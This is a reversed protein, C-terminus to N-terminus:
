EQGTDAIRRVEAAVIREVLPPLNADLWDKLVPRLMDRVLAELTLDAPGERVVLRNLSAFAQRSAQSAAASILDGEDPALQAAEASRSAVASTAGPVEPESAAPETSWGGEDPAITTSVFSGTDAQPADLLIPEPPVAHVAETLELVHDEGASGEAAAHVRAQTEDPGEAIVRKISSLIEEM